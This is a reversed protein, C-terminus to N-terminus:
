KGDSGCKIVRRAFKVLELQRRWRKPEKILSYLWEMGMKRVWNPARKLDGSLYDFSRGVGMVVGVDLNKLNRDIWEEQKKMGYAVFLFDPKFENIKRVVEENNVEPEGKSWGAELGKYKEEFYRATREARDEWGGLFYVLCGKEAAMEVMKQMLEVGPVLSERHKGRMVEWAIKLSKDFGGGGVEKAWALGVGDVVNLSTKQLLEKFKQDKQAAMVFEPNVTAIWQKKKGTGLWDEIIKLVQSMGGGFLSIGWIQWMSQGYDSKTKRIEPKEV